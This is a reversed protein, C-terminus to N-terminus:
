DLPPRSSQQWARLGIALRVALAVVLLVAVALATLPGPRGLDTTGSLSAAAGLGAVLAAVAALGTQGMRLRVTALPQTSTRAALGLGIGILGVILSGAGLMLAVAERPAFGNAVGNLGWSVPLSRMPGLTATLIAAAALGLAIWGTALDAAHLRRPRM